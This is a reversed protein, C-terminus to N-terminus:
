TDEKVKSYYNNIELYAHDNKGSDFNINKFIFM